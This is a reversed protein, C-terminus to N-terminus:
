TNKNYKSLLFLHFCCEITFHYMFMSGGTPTCMYWSEFEVIKSWYNLWCNKVIILVLKIHISKYDFTSDLLGLNIIMFIITYFLHIILNYNLLGHWILNYWVRPKEFLGKYGHIDKLGCGYIGTSALFGIFRDNHGSKIQEMGNGERGIPWKVMIIAASEQGVLRMWTWLQASTGQPRRKKWRCILVLLEWYGSIVTEFFFFLIWIHSWESPHFLTGLVSSNVRVCM